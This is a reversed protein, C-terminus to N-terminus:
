EEDKDLSNIFENWEDLFEQDDIPESEQPVVKGDWYEIGNEDRGYRPHGDVMDNDKYKEKYKNKNNYKSYYGINSQGDMSNIIAENDWINNSLYITRKKNGNGNKGYICKIYGYEILHKIHKSVTDVRIGYMDALAKNSIGAYGEKKCLATIREAILKEESTLDKTKYIESPMIAFIRICEDNM